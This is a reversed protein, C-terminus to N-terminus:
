RPSLSGDPILTKGGHELLLVFSSGFTLHLDLVNLLAGHNARLLLM